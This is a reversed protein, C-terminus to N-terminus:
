LIGLSLHLNHVDNTTVFNNILRLCFLCANTKPPYERGELTGASGILEWQGSGGGAGGGLRRKKVAQGRFCAM